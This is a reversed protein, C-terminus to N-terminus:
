PVVRNGTLLQHALATIADLYDPTLPQRGLMRRHMLPGEILDAVLSLDPLQGIEGRQKARNIANRLPEGRGEAMTRFALEADPDRHLDATLGMLGDIWPSSWSEAFDDVIVRLDSRLTGTDPDSVPPLHEALVDVVLQAKSSWRRYVDTRHAQAQSAVKTLTLADYGLGRLLSWAADLLRKELEPDRPRGAV